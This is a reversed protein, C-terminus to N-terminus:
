RKEEIIEKETENQTPVSKAKDDTVKRSSGGTPAKKKQRRISEALQAERKKRREEEEKEEKEKKDAIEEELNDYEKGDGKAANTVDKEQSKAILEALKDANMRSTILLTGDSKTILGANIAKQLETKFDEPEKDSGDNGMILDKADKGLNGM